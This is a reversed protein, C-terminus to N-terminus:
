ITGRDTFVMDHIFERGFSPTRGHIIDWAAEGVTVGVTRIDARYGSIPLDTASNFVDVDELCALSIEEGPRVENARMQEIALSHSVMANKFFIIGDPMGGAHDLILDLIREPTSIEYAFINYSPDFPLGLTKFAREIANRAYLSPGSKQHKTVYVIRRRQKEALRTLLAVAAQGYDAHVHYQREIGDIEKDLSIIPVHNKAILDINGRKTRGLHPSIVLPYVNQSLMQYIAENEQEETTEEPTALVVSVGHKFLTQQFYQFFASFYSSRISPLIVGALTSTKGFFRSSANNPVYGLEQAIQLVRAQTDKGVFINKGVKNNLVASVAAVSTNGKKAIDALKVRKM